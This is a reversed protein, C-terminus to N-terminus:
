DRLVSCVTGLLVNAGAVIADYTTAEEACHSRGEVSPVFILGTPCFRAM